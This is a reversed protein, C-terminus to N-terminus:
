RASRPVFVGALELEVIFSAPDPGLPNALVAPELALRFGNRTEGDGGASPVLVFGTSIGVRGAPMPLPMVVDLSLMSGLEFQALFAVFPRTSGRAHMAGGHFAVKPWYWPVLSYPPIHTPTPGLALEVGLFGPGRQRFRGLTFGFSPGLDMMESLLGTGVYGGFWGYIEPVTPTPAAEAATGTEAAQAGASASRAARADASCSWLCVVITVVVVLANRTM